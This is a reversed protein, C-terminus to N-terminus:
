YVPNNRAYFVRFATLCIVTFWVQRLIEMGDVPLNLSFAVYIAGAVRLICYDTFTNLSYRVSTEEDLISAYRYGGNKLSAMIWALGMEAYRHFLLGFSTPFSIPQLFGGDSWFNQQTVADAFGLLQCVLLISVLDLVVLRPEEVILFKSLYGGTDGDDSDTSNTSMFLSTSRTKADEVFIHLGNKRRSLLNGNDYARWLPDRATQSLRAAPRANVIGPLSSTFAGVINQPHLASTFIFLFCLTMQKMTNITTFQSQHANKERYDWRQALDLCRSIARSHSKRAGAGYFRMRSWRFFRCAHRSRQYGLRWEIGVLERRDAGIAEVLDKQVVLRVLFMRAILQCDDVEGQCRRLDGGGGQRAADKEDGGAALRFVEESRGPTQELDGFARTAGSEDRYVKVAVMAVVSLLHHLSFKLEGHLDDRPPAAEQVPVSGRALPRKQLRGIEM